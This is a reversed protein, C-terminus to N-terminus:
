DGTYRKLTVTKEEGKHLILLEFPEGSRWLGALYSNISATEIEEIKQGNVELIIDNKVLKADGAGSKPEIAKIRYKGGPANKDITLGLKQIYKEWNGSVFPDAENKIQDIPTGDMKNKFDKMIPIIDDINGNIFKGRASDEFATVFYQIKNYEPKVSIDITRITKVSFNKNYGNKKLRLSLSKLEDITFDNEIMKEVLLDTVEEPEKSTIITTIFGTDAEARGAGLGMAAAMVLVALCKIGAKKDAKKLYMRKFVVYLFYGLLPLAAIPLVESFLAPVNPLLVYKGILYVFALGCIFNLIFLMM